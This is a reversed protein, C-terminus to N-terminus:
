DTRFVWHQKSKAVSASGNTNGDRHSDCHCYDERANSTACDNDSGGDSDSANNSKGSSVCGEGGDGKVFRPDCCRCVRM